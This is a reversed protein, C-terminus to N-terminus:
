SLRSLEDATIRRRAAQVSPRVPAASPVRADPRSSRPAPIERTSLDSPLSVPILWSTPAPDAVTNTAKVAPADTRVAPATVPRPTAPEVVPAAAAQDRGQKRLMTLVVLRLKNGFPKEVLQHLLVAAVLTVAAAALVATWPSVRDRVLHIVYWGLNEHLLYVPYTLAGAFAMWKMNWRAVPTLTVLAVLGFCAATFIAIVAKSPVWLTELPLAYSYTNISFNLAFAGQMGILLWVGLDHGDRYIVYLLMGGAFFPAYDPMLLAILMESNTSGAMAGVIPWLACFALVRNRTIGVLILVAILAYFRAEYWLTWYPGDIDPVSFASNVMTFNLLAGSTTVQHGLYAPNEPWLVVVLVVSFAVAVWFAPFLRGIRSAIFSQVDKGWSSMMLVFGSIVFFLPVGMRGYAAWQGVGALEEPPFGNWGPSQRATYHFAVVALAAIFRMADLMGLHGSRKRPAATTQM